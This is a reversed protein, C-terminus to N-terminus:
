ARRVRVPLWRQLMGDVAVTLSLAVLFLVIGALWHLYGQGAADGLHYTVIALLMVRVVNSVFSIPVVLLALLLKRRVDDSAILNAYVLGMAELTFMTQLGACAEQVLLQYQGLTIVVGARGIPYGMAGLGHVAVASVGEKLPGTLALMWEYPLPFAFLLLLLPFWALRLAPSGKFHWLCAGLVLTISMVVAGTMGTIRGVLYLLLGLGLVVLSPAPWPHADPLAALRTRLRWLLWGAVLFILLEYRDALAAGHAAYSLVPAYLVAFGGFLLGFPWARALVHWRATSPSSWSPVSEREM